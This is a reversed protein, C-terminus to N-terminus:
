KNGKREKKEDIKIEKEKEKERERKKKNKNKNEDPEIYTNISGRELTGTDAPTFNGCVDPAKNKYM